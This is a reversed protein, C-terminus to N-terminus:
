FLRIGVRRVRRVRCDCTQVRRTRQRQVVHLAPGCVMQAARLTLGRAHGLGASRRTARTCSAAIACEVGGTGLSDREREYAAVRVLEVAELKHHAGCLTPIRGACDARRGVLGRLGSRGDLAALLGGSDLPGRLSTPKHRWFTRPHFAAFDLKPGQRVRRQPLGDM